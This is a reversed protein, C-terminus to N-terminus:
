QVSSSQKVPVVVQRMGREAFKKNQEEAYKLLAEEDGAKHLEMTQRQAEQWEKHASVLEKHFFDLFDEPKGGKSIYEKMLQKAQAVNAKRQASTETDEDYLLIDTNLIKVVDEKAHIRPLPPPPYGPKANVIMSIIQEAGSKYAPRAPLVNGEQDVRGENLAIRYELSNTSIPKPKEAVANTVPPQVPEVKAAVNTKVEVPPPTVKKQVQVSKPPKKSKATKGKPPTMQSWAFFAVALAVGGLALVAYRLPVQRGTDVSGAPGETVSLPVLGKNALEHLAANRDAAQLSGRKTAGSADRATYNFNRM